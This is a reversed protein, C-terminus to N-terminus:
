FLATSGGRRSAHATLMLLSHSIQYTCHTMGLWHHSRFSRIMAEEELCRCFDFYCKKLTLKKKPNGELSRKKLTVLKVISLSSKTISILRPASMMLAEVKDELYATLHRLGEFERSWRFTIYDEFFLDNSSPILVYRTDGENTSDVLIELDPTEPKELREFPTMLTFTAQSSIEYEEDICEVHFDCLKSETDSELFADWSGLESVGCIDDLCVSGQRSCSHEDDNLLSDFFADDSFTEEIDCTEDVVQDPVQARTPDGAEDLNDKLSEKPSFDDMSPLTLGTDCLIEEDITEEYVGTPVELNLEEPSIEILVPDLDTAILSEFSIPTCLTEVTESM